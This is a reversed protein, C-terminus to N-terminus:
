LCRDKAETYFCTKKAFHDRVEACCVTIRRVGPLKGKALMIKATLSALLEASSQGVRQQLKKDEAEMLLSFSPLDLKEM